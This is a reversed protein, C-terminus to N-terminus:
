HGSIKRALLRQGQPTGLFQVIARARPSPHGRRRTRVRIVFMAVGYAVPVVALVVEVAREARPHARPHEEGGDAHDVEDHARKPLVHIAM